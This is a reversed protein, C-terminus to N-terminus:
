CRCLKNIDRDQSHRLTQIDHRPETDFYLLLNYRVVDYFAATVDYLFECIVCNFCFKM